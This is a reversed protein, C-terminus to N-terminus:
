FEKVMPNQHSWTKPFAITRVEADIDVLLEFLRAFRYRRDDIGGIGVKSRELMMAALHDLIGSPRVGRDCGLIAEIIIFFDRLSHSVNMIKVADEHCRSHGM